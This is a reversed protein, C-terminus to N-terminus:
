WISCLPCKQKHKSTLIHILTAILWYIERDSFKYKRVQHIIKDIKSFDTGESGKTAKTATALLKGFEMWAQDVREYIEVMM